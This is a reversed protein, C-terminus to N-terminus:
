PKLEFYLLGLTKASLKDAPNPSVTREGDVRCRCRLAFRYRFETTDPTKSASSDSMTNTVRQDWFSLSRLLNFQSEQCCNTTVNTLQSM